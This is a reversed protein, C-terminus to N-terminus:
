LYIWFYYIFMFSLNFYMYTKSNEKGWHTMEHVTQPTCTGRPCLWERGCYWGTEWYFMTIFANCEASLHGGRNCLIGRHKVLVTKFHDRLQVFRHCGHFLQAHGVNTCPSTMGDFAHELSPACCSYSFHLTCHTPSSKPFTPQPIITPLM